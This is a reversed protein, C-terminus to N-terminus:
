EIRPTALSKSTCLVEFLSFKCATKRSTNHIIYYDFIRIQKLLRNSILLSPRTLPEKSASKRVNIIIILTTPDKLFAFGFQGM